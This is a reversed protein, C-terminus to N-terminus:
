SSKKTQGNKKDKVYQALFEAMLLSRQVLSARSVAEQPTNLDRAVPGVGCVVPVKAPVLGGVSPILSSELALPIEWTDAVSSLEKALQLNKRREKM